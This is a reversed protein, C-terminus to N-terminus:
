WLRVSGRCGHPSWINALEAMCSPLDLRSLLSLTGPGGWTSSPSGTHFTARLIDGMWVRACPVSHNVVLSGLWPLWTFEPREGTRGHTFTSSTQELSEAYRARGLHLLRIRYPIHVYTTPWGCAHVSVSHSVVLSGLWPLWTFEPQEGARGHTFTSSTQQLSEVHRARGVHVLSLGYPINCTPHRGDM